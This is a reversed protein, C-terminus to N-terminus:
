LIALSTPFSGMMIFNGSPWFRPTVLDFTYTSAEKQKLEGRENVVKISKKSSSPFLNEIGIEPVVSLEMNVAYPKWYRSCSFTTKNNGGPLGM